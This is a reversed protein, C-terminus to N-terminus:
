RKIHSGLKESWQKKFKFDMADGTEPSTVYHVMSDRGNASKVRLEVKEM